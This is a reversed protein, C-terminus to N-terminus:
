SGGGRLDAPRPLIAAFGPFLRVHFVQLFISFRPPVIHQCPHAWAKGNPHNYKSAAISRIRALGAFGGAHGYRTYFSRYYFRSFLEGPAMLRSSILAM